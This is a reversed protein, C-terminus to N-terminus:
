FKKSSNITKTLDVGLSSNSGIEGGIMSKLTKLVLEVGPELTIIFRDDKDTVTFFKKSSQSLFSTTHGRNMVNGYRVVPFNINKDGSVNNRLLYNDATLKTAGYLNIPAAAKDTSSSYKQYM